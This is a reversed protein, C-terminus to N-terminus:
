ETRNQEWTNVNIGEVAITDLTMSITHLEVTQILMFALKDRDDRFYEWVLSAREQDLSEYITGLAQCLRDAKQENGTRTQEPKPEM